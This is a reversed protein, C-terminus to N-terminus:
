VVKVNPVPIIFKGGRLRYESQQRMIEEAFNWSLMLVYDPQLELLKSPPLIPLHTGPMYRGQKYTSRDVVFDITEQGIGFYILLTCGKAAAGYAAIRKGKKKLDQLLGVLEKKLAEVKQAFDQYFEVSDAGWATEESLLEQV